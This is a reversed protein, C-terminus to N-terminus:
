IYIYAYMYVYICLIYIYVYVTKVQAAFREIAARKQEADFVVRWAVFVEKSVPTDPFCVLLCPLTLLLLPLRPPPPPLLLLLLVLLLWL